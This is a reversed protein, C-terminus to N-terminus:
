EQVVEVTVENPAMWPLSQNRGVRRFSHQCATGDAIQGEEHNISDHSAQPLLSPGTTAELDTDLGEPRQAGLLVLLEFGGDRPDPLNGFRLAREGQAGNLRTGMASVEQRVAWHPGICLCLRRLVVLCGDYVTEGM